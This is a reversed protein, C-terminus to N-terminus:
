TCSDLTMMFDVYYTAAARWRYPQLAKCRVHEYSHCLTTNPLALLKTKNKKQVIKETEKTAYHDDQGSTLQGKPGIGTVKVLTPEPGGGKDIYM